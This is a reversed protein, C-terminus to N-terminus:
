VSCRAPDIGTGVFLWGICVWILLPSVISYVCSSCSIYFFFHLPPLTLLCFLTLNLGFLPPCSWVSASVFPLVYAFLPSLCFVPFFCFLLSFQTKSAALRFLMGSNVGSQYVDSVDLREVKDGSQQGDELRLKVQPLSQEATLCQVRTSLRKYSLELLVAPARVNLVSYTRINTWVDNGKLLGDLNVSQSVSLSENSPHHRKVM